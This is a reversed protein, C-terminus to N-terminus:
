DKHVIGALSVLAFLRATRMWAILLVILQTVAFAAIWGATSAAPINIRAIGLLAALLAGCATLAAYAGLAAGPRRALLKLGRWWGKVASSRRRDAALAARGADLTANALLLLLVTAAIAAMDGLQADSYLVAKKAHDTALDALKGGIAGAVGFPVVAWLLMRFMRPYEAMGGAFLVGFRAPQPSRAATVVAGTLFPSLLLLLVIAAVGGARFALKNEGIAAALDTLAALDLEQALAAARVSHDLAASLTSWMPVALLLTPLLSAGLWVLLLRWQLAARAANVINKM